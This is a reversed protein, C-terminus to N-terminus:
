EISKALFVAKYEEEFYVVFYYYDLDPYKPFGMTIVLEVGRTTIAQAILFTVSDRKIEEMSETFFTYINKSGDESFFTINNNTLIIVGSPKMQQEKGDEVITYKAIEFARKFEEDEQSFSFMPILFLLLITTITKM